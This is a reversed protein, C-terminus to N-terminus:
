EYREYGLDTVPQTTISQSLPIREVTFAPRSDHVTVIIMCLSVGVCRLSSRRAHGGRAELM